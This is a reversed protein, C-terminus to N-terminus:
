KTTRKGELEPSRVIDHVGPPPKPGAPAQESPVPLSPGPKPVGKKPPPGSVAVIRPPCFKMYRRVDPLNPDAEFIAGYALSHVSGNQHNVPIPIRSIVKFWQTKVM